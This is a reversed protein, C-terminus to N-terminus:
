PVSGDRSSPFSTLSAKRFSVVCYRCATAPTSAPSPKVGGDSTRPLGMFATRLFSPPGAPDPSTQNEISSLSLPLVTSATMWPLAMRPTTGDVLLPIATINRALVSRAPPPVAYPILRQAGTVSVAPSSAAITSVSARPRVVASM